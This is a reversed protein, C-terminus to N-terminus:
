GRSCASRLGRFPPCRDLPDALLEPHWQVGVAWRLLPHEVAEIVGDPARGTALLAGLRRASQHHTSNVRITDRGFQARLLGEELRVEHWTTAPDTPQEHEAAGAIQAGIDQVLSGGSAVLLTQLGGCLGLVPFDADLAARALALELTARGEDVRDLRGAVAEGYHRPHLDVAGGTIVLGDTHTLVWAVVDAVDGEEPPLLVPALGAERLADVVREGVLVEPRPPRVRASQPAPGLARRDATVAVTPRM